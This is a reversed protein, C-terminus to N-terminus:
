VGGQQVTTFAKTYTNTLRMKYVGTAEWAAQTNNGKQWSKPLQQDAKTKVKGNHMSIRLFSNNVLLM